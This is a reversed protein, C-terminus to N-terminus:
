TVYYTYSSLNVSNLLCLNANIGPDSVGISGNKSLIGIHKPWFPPELFSIRISLVLHLLIEKRDTIIFIKKEIIVINSTTGSHSDTRM